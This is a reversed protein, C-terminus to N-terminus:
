YFQCEKQVQYFVGVLFFFFLNLLLFPDITEKVVLSWFKRQYGQLNENLLVVGSLVTHSSIGFNGCEPGGEVEM